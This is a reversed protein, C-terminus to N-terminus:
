KLQLIKCSYVWWVSPRISPNLDYLAKLSGLYSCISLQTRLLGEQKFKVKLHFYNQRLIQNSEPPYFNGFEEGGWVQLHGPVNGAATGFSLNKLYKLNLKEETIIHNLKLSPHVGVKFGMKIATLVIQLDGGSTLM